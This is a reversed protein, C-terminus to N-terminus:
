LIIMPTSYENCVIIGDKSTGPIYYMSSLNLEKELLWLADENLQKSADALKTVLPITKNEDLIRLLANSEKRFGLVRAYPTSSNNTMYKSVEEKKINLLIHLLARSIRSYAMEKTKLLECFQTFCTYEKIKNIIRDSLDKSVDLYEEFGKGQETILKYHLLSSYDDIFTLLNKTYGDKLLMFADEPMKSHIRELDKKNAISNRIGSASSINNDMSTDNYGAGERKITLPLIKSNLKKLAKMYELALINNPSSLLASYSATEPYAKAFALERAKAFSNGAKLEKLLEEKFLPTENYLKDAISSLVDMDGSESGFCLHTVGGIKELLSVAGYAFYEASGTAYITPLELVLDAGQSLAMKARAYKDMIACEGRQVFNGSMVVVIYDAGSLRKAEKIHYLHGNHFPNYEAIIGCVKM